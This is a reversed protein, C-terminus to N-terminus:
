SAVSNAASIMGFLESLAGYKKGNEPDNEYYCFGPTSLGKWAEADTVNPIPTGDNFKTTRLNEVTWVQSGIRVTHYVNGDADMMTGDAGGKTDAARISSAPLMMIALTATAHMTLTAARNKWSLTQRSAGPHIRTNTQIKKTNM